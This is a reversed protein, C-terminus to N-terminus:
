NIKIASAATAGYNTQTIDPKHILRSNVRQPICSNERTMLEEEGRPSTELSNLPPPNSAKILHFLKNFYQTGETAGLPSEPLINKSALIVAHKM